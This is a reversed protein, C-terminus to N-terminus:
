RLAGGLASLRSGGGGGVGRGPRSPPLDGRPGAQDVVGAARDGCLDEDLGVEGEEGFYEAGLDVLAAGAAAGSADGM